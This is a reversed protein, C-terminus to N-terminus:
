LVFVNQVHIRSVASVLGESCCINHPIMRASHGLYLVPLGATDGSLRENREKRETVEVHGIKEGRVSLRLRAFHRELKAKRRLGAEYLERM